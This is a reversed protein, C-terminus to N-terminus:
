ICEKNEKETYRIGFSNLVDEPVGKWMNPQNGMYNLDKVGEPSTYFGSATLNRMLSFFEVGPRMEPKAKEPYAIENVLELQQEPSCKPFTKEYRNLCQMELWRLGGRMPIQHDPMDRVIFDIFAPVGAESASGSVEDRPIIIDALVTITAMEDTTFFPGEALLKKERALEDPNRDLNFTDSADTKKDTECGTLVAPAALAGTAILKLSSRRDM